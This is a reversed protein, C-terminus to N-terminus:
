RVKRGFLNPYPITRVIYASANHKKGLQLSLPCTPLPRYGLRYAIWSLIPFWFCNSFFRLVHSVEKAPTAKSALPASVRRAQGTAAARHHTTHHPPCLPHVTPARPLGHLLCFLFLFSIQCPCCPIFHLFSLFLGHVARAITSTINTAVNTDLFGPRQQATSTVSKLAPTDVYPTPRELGGCKTSHSM